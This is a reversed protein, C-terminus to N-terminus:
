HEVDRMLPVESLGQVVADNHIVVATEHGGISPILERLRQPLNFNKSQWNGPLNQGGRKISGDERILGPCRIGVFPAVRLNKSEARKILERLMDALRVVAEDRKPKDDAHRWL